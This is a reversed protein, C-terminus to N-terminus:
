IIDLFKRLRSHIQLEVFLHRQLVFLTDVLKFYVFLDVVCRPCICVTSVLRSCNHLLLHHLPANTRVPCGVHVVYILLRFYLIKVACVPLYGFNVVNVRLVRWIVPPHVARM